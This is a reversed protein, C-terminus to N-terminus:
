QYKRVFEDLSISTIKKNTLDNILDNIMIFDEKSDDDIATYKEKIKATLIEYNNTNKDKVLEFFEIFVKKIEENQIKVDQFNYVQDLFNNFNIGNKYLNIDFNKIISFMLPHILEFHLIKMIRLTENLDLLNTKNVDFREFSYKLSEYQFINLFAHNEAHKSLIIVRFTDDDTDANYLGVYKFDKNKLPRINKNVHHLERTDELMRPIFFHMPADGEDFISYFSEDNMEEFSNKRKKNITNKQDKHEKIKNDLIEKATQCLNFSIIYNNDTKFAELNPIIEEQIEKSISQKNSKDLLKCVSHLNKDISSPDKRFNALAKLFVIDKKGLSFNNDVM